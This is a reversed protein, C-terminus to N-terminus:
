IRRGCAGGLGERGRGGTGGGTDGGSLNGGTGVVAEFDAGRPAAGGGSVPHAKNLYIPQRHESPTHRLYVGEVHGGGDDGGGPSIIDMDRVWELTSDERYDEM